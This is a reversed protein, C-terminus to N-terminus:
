LKSDHCIMTASQKFLYTLQSPSELPFKNKQFKKDRPYYVSSRYFTICLTKFSKRETRLIDVTLVTM